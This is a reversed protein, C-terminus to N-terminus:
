IWAPHPSDGSEVKNIPVRHIIAARGGPARNRLSPRFGLQTLNWPLSPRPAEIRRKGALEDETFLCPVLILSPLRHRSTMRPASRHEGCFFGLLRCHRRSLVISVLRSRKAMLRRM